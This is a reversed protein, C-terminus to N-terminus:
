KKATREARLRSTREARLRSTREARTLLWRWAAWAWKGYLGDDNADVGVNGSVFIMEM